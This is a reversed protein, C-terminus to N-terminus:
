PTFMQKEEKNTYYHDQKTCDYIRFIKCQKLHLDTSHVWFLPHTEGLLNKIQKLWSFEGMSNKSEDMNNAYQINSTFFCTVHM